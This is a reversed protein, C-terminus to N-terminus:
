AYNNRQKLADAIQQCYDYFQKTPPNHHDGYYHIASAPWSVKNQKDVYELNELETGCVQCVVDGKYEIMGNTSNLFNQIMVLNQIFADEDEWKQANIPYLLQGPIQHEPSVAWQGARYWSDERRPAQNIQDTWVEQFTEVQGSRQRELEKIRMELESAKPKTRYDGKYRSDSVFDYSKVDFGPGDHQFTTRKTYKWQNDM